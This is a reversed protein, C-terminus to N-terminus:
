ISGKRIFILEKNCMPCARRSGGQIRNHMLTTLSFDRCGCRYIFPRPWRKVHGKINYSHCRDAQLGFCMEMIKQWERGHPVERKRWMKLFVVLHAVEHPVTQSLFHDQNEIAVPLNFRLRANVIKKTEKCYTVRCQGAVAGKLSFDIDPRYQSIGYNRCARNLCETVKERIAKKIGDVCLADNSCFLDLQKEVGEANKGM